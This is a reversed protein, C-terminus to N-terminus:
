RIMVGHDIELVVKLLVYFKERVERNDTQTMRELLDRLDYKPLGPPVDLVSNIEGAERCKELVLQLHNKFHDNITPTEKFQRRGFLVSGIQVIDFADFELEGNEGSSPKPVLRRSILERLEDADCDLEGGLNLLQITEDLSLPWHPELDARQWWDSEAFVQRAAELDDLPDSKRTGFTPQITQM